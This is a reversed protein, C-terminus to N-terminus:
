RMSKQLAFELLLRAVSALTQWPASGLRLAFRMGCAMDFVAIERLSYSTSSQKPKVIVIM